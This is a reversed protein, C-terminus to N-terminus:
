TPVRYKGVAHRRDTAQSVVQQVSIVVSCKKVTASNPNDLMTASGEPQYSEPIHPNCRKTTGAHFV